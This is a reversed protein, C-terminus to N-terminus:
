RHIIAKLAKYIPYFWSVPKEFVGLLEEVYGNFGRKFQYVGYGEDDKDFVGTIGYFNYRDYGHALGYRIMDWQLAVSPTFKLFKDYAASFLYFIENGYTVFFSSAMPILNGYEDQLAKAKKLGEENLELDHQIAKLQKLTKKHKPNEELIQTCAQQKAEMEQKAQMLNDLYEDVKMEAVKVVMIDQLYRYQNYYFQGDRSEFHRRDATHAMMDNFINMEELKLERVHIGKRQTSYIHNRTKQSMENLIQEESKGKLDLVFAWRPEFEESNGITYGFHRYGSQKLFAVVDHHDFGDQVVNGDIDRQVLPYYPDMRFYLGKHKKCFKETENLFYAFVEHNEYDVCLGRAAEFAYFGFKLPYASLAAAAIIKNEAEIGVYYIKWGNSKRFESMTVSQWFNRREYNATFSEYEQISIEKFIM